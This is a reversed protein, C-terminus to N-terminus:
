SKKNAQKNFISTMINNVTIFLSILSNQLALFLSNFPFCGIQPPQESICCFLDSLWKQFAAFRNNKIEDSVTEKAEEAEEIDDCVMESTCDDTSFNEEFDTIETNPHGDAGFLNQNKNLVNEKEANPNESSSNIEMGETRSDVTAELSVDKTEINRQIEKLPIMEPEGSSSHASTVVDINELCTEPDKCDNRLMDDDESTCEERIIPFIEVIPIQDKEYLFRFFFFFLIEKVM